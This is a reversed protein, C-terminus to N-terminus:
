PMGLFFRRLLFCGTGTGAGFGIALIL